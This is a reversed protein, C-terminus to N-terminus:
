EIISKYNEKLYRATVDILYAINSVDKFTMQGFNSFRGKAILNCLTFMDLLLHIDIM